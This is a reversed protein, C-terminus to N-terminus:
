AWGDRRQKLRWYVVGAGAVVLVAALLHVPALGFAGAVAQLAANLTGGVTTAQNALEAAQAAAATAQDLANGAPPTVTAPPALTVVGGGTSAVAAGIKILPSASLGSEAAVAQPMARAAPADKLHLASEAARRRTLGAAVELKGTRPNKYKNWLSYARAAALVDGRNHAKLVSSTKFNALGINYTLSVMAALEHPGPEVKCLQRVAQARGELDECLWRDAQDQTCVDGPHVGDTEGWGITWVGADCRYAKLACGGDPGQEFSAILLVGEYAIPWPLSPDPREYDM